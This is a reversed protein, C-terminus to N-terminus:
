GDILSRLENEVRGVATWAAAVEGRDYRTAAKSLRDVMSRLRADPIFVVDEHFRVWEDERLRFYESGGPVGGPASLNEPVHSPGDTVM